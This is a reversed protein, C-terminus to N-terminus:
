LFNYTGIYRAMPVSLTVPQFSVEKSDTIIKETLGTTDDTEAHFTVGEAVDKFKLTGAYESVIVANFPDRLLSTARKVRNGQKFYLSSGYPIVNLTSLVIETNPDVFRIEMLRSVVM